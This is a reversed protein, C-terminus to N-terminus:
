ASADINPKCFIRFLYQFCLYYQHLVDIMCGCMVKILETFGFIFLYYMFWVPICLQGIVIIYWEGFCTLSSSPVIKRQLVECSDKSTILKWIIEGIAVSLMIGSAILSLISVATVENYAYSSSLFVINIIIQPLDEMLRNTFKHHSKLFFNLLGLILLCILTFPSLFLGFAIWPIALCSCWSCKTMLSCSSFYLLYLPYCLIEWAQAFYRKPKKKSSVATATTTATSPSSTSGREMQSSPSVMEVHRGEKGEGHENDHQYVEEYKIYNKEKAQQQQQLERQKERESEAKNRACGLILWTGIPCPFDLLNGKEHIGVLCDLVHEKLSEEHIIKQKHLELLTEDSMCLIRLPGFLFMDLKRHAYPFHGKGKVGLSPRPSPEASPITTDIPAEMPGEEISSVVQYSQTHSYEDGTDPQDRVIEQERIGVNDERVSYREQVNSQHSKTPSSGTSEDAIVTPASHNVSSTPPDEKSWQWITTYDRVTKAFIMYCSIVFFALSANFLNWYFNEERVTCSLYDDGSKTQDDGYYNGDDASYCAGQLDYLKLVFLLDSVLDWVEMGGGFIYYFRVFYPNSFVKEQYQKVTEVFVTTFSSQTTENVSERPARQSESSPVGDRHIETVQNPIIQDEM